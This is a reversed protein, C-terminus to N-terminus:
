AVGTSEMWLTKSMPKLKPRAISKAVHGFQSFVEAFRAEDPGLYVFSTGFMQCYKHLQEPVIFHVRHDPICILYDWLPYFWAANVETTALIIAQKVQGSQYSNVLKETFLRITSKRHAKMKVTRGYPPNLWVRGYWEQELGNQEETYYRVAKVITNAAACSAPDLDIGGMVERAAEIYKPQTYWESSSM